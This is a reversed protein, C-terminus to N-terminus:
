RVSFCWRNQIHDVLILRENSCEAILFNKQFYEGKDMIIADGKSGLEWTGGGKAFDLHTDNYYTGNSKYERAFQASLYNKVETSLEAVVTDLHANSRISDLKWKKLLQEKQVVVTQIRNVSPIHPLLTDTRIFIMSGVAKGEFHMQLTDKGVVRIKKGSELPSNDKILIMKENNELHYDGLEVRAKWTMRYRSADFEFIQGEMLRSMMLSKNFDEASDSIFKVFEWKGQLVQEQSKVSICAFIIIILLQIRNVIM